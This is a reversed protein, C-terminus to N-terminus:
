IVKPRGRYFEEITRILLDSVFGTDPSHQITSTKYLEDLRGNQDDALEMIQDYTWTGAKVSKVFDRDVPKLRVSLDEHRLIEEGQILLRFIHSLKTIM